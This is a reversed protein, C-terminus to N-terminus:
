KRNHNGRTKKAHKKGKNLLAEKKKFQSRYSFFYSGLGILAFIGMVAYRFKPGDILSSIPLNNEAM